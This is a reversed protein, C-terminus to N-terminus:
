CTMLITGQMKLLQTLVRKLIQSVGHQKCLSKSIKIALVTKLIYLTGGGRNFCEVKKGKSFGKRKENSSQENPRKWKGSEQNKYFMKNFKMVRKVRKTM